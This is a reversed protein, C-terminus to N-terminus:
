VQARLWKTFAKLSARQVGTRTVIYYGFDEDDEFLKVLRGSEIDGQVWIGVTVTIGQGMRAADM